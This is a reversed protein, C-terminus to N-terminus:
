EYNVILNNLNSFFRKGYRARYLFRVYLCFLCYLRDIVSWKVISLDVLLVNKEATDGFVMSKKQLCTM